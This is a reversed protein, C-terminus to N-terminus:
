SKKCFFLYTNYSYETYFSLTKKVLLQLSLCFIEVLSTVKQLFLRLFFNAAKASSILAYAMRIDFSKTGAKHIM